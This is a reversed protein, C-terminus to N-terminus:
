RGGEWEWVGLQRSGAEKPPTTAAAATIASLIVPAHERNGVRAAQEM